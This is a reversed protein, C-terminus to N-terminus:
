DTQSESCITKTTFSMTKHTGELWNKLTTSCSNCNIKLLWNKDREDFTSNYARKVRSLKANRQLKTYVERFIHCFMDLSNKCNRLM